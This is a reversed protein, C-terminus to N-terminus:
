SRGEEVQEQLEAWTGMVEDLRSRTDRLERDLEAARRAGERGEYLAPDSLAQELRVLDAELRHIEEELRAAERKASRLAQENQRKSDQQKRSRGATAARDVTERESAEAARRAERESRYREWEVFPGAFEEIRNGDFAWVRTALERLFARDHSVIIATGDFGEFADELAEISEVDLHNTPEDLILLNARTLMILALALRAREGGSLVTTQRLVEDGSFGFRGLHSQIPGRGWAPRVDAICQYLTRDLPVQALDQRFWTPMVGSGVRLSGGSPAREGTLTSLLTTKGAGNPGVLAIIEGRRGVASFDRVLVRQGIRIELRDAIVVQDGSRSEAELRLSMIEDESPPPSLRPLRELRRRRGKAQSTNQGAINRRIFDAEKAIFKRQQEVQRELTLLREARQTVFASYGGRYPAATGESVHLVHDVTDDLFARDHSIVLVSEGFEGLYRRLWDITELDLHNTPEDLLVLDAPAALQAALGLRGQEGGSLGALPRGKAENADFGLGQLVADVRAHFDYGGAHAFAEQDRGYRALDGETVANGLEALREAQRALEQELRLVDRYGSAAAEWITAASGFDRLQDLLAVRLGASKVMSGSSPELAGTILRFLTTKGAGNRGVIGWREGSEVSFTVRELLTRAGFRVAVNGFSLIAVSFVLDSPDSADSADSSDSVDRQL